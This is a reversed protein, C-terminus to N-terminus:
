LGLYLHELASLAELELWQKKVIKNNFDGAITLFVLFCHSLWVHFSFDKAVWITIQISMIKRKKKKESLFAFHLINVLVFHIIQNAMLLCILFTDKFAYVKM